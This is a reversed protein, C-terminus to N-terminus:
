WGPGLRKGDAPVVEQWDSRSLPPEGYDARAVMDALAILSENMGPPESSPEQVAVVERARRVAQHFLKQNEATLNRVDLRRPVIEHDSGRVWPGYGIDKIDGPGPLLSLLWDRLAHASPSDTLQDAVLRLIADYIVPSPAFCRGDALM